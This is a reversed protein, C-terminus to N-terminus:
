KDLWRFRSSLRLSGSLSSYIYSRSVACLAFAQLALLPILFRNLCKGNIKLTTDDSSGQATRRGDWERVM